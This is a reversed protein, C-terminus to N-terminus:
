GVAFRGVGSESSSSSTTTLLQHASQMLVNEILLSKGVSSRGCVGIQLLNDGRHRRSTVCAYFTLCFLDRMSLKGLLAKNTAAFSVCKDSDIFNGFMRNYMLSKERLPMEPMRIEAFLNDMQSDFIRNVYSRVLPSTKISLQPSIDLVFALSKKLLMEKREDATLSPSIKTQIYEVVREVLTESAMEKQNLLEDRFKALALKESNWDDDDDDDDDDNGKDKEREERRKEKGLRGASADISRPTNPKLSAVPVATLAPSKSAFVALLELAAKNFVRGGMTKKKDMLAVYRQVLEPYSLSALELRANEAAQASAAAAGGIKRGNKSRITTELPTSTVPPLRPIPDARGGGKSIPSGWDAFSIAAHDTPTVAWTFVPDAVSKERTLATEAVPATPKEAETQSGGATHNVVSDDVASPGAISAVAAATEMWSDTTDWLSLSPDPKNKKPSPQVSQQEQPQYQITIAPSGAGISNQWFLDWDDNADDENFPNEM